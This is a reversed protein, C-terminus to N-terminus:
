KSARPNIMYTVRKRGGTEETRQELWHLDTLLELGAKIGDGDTLGSWAKRQIDRASFGDELDRKRIRALIQKATATEGALGSGYLRCAHTELYESLAHARGFAIVGIAGAGGDALHNILALTPVLKRFKAFHSELAPSIDPARIRKEHEKQWDAFLEQADADFRFFPLAEYQDHEAGITDADLKDLRDFTEWAATRASTDPLRDCDRWEGSQDPWVLLSFRQILGDDGAGGGTAGRVYGAIRAPQTSGLLSLCVAEIHTKGRTIRDFAYGSTGNWAQLFFGRAAAQEERDLGKLLSVLEDRFALVGNPNEAMIEGLAEYTTDNVIYRKAKLADPEALDPLTATLGKKLAIRAADRAADTKLKFLEMDRAHAAQAGGYAERAVKELRHLPKLAEAMAPSKMAGPRGVICGWLNPVETWDSRRKPRVGVKRGLTAGLAVLAPIAVFDPPCQMREAIDAVWPALSEPLFADDFAAVPALGTPIPKPELWSIPAAAPGAAPAVPEFPKALEHAAKRLAAIDSWEAVADAADWKDRPDRRDGAPDMAALARADIIAVEGGIKAVIAAVEAAYRVGAADHDPWILVRRRAVPSWDTKTAAGSGGSSTTVISKPFIQAAADASKEGECVIIPTGAQNVIAALNYLLRQTPWAAFQWGKGERWSLPRFTKEDGGTNWRLAHFALAGIATEYRWAADPSRGFLRAAAAEGPEADSPPYILKAIETDLMTDASPSAAAIESETLPAFPDRPSDM